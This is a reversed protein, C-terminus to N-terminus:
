NHYYFEKVGESHALMAQLLEKQHPTLLAAAPVEAPVPEAMTNLRHSMGVFYTLSM